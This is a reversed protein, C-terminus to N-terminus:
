PSRGPTVPTPPTPPAFSRRHAGLSLVYFIGFCAPGLATVGWAMGGVHGGWALMVAHAAPVLAATGIATLMLWVLFGSPYRRLLFARQEHVEWWRWALSLVVYPLVIWLLLEPVLVKAATTAEAQRAADAPGFALAQESLLAIFSRWAALGQWVVAAAGAMLVLRLRSLWRVRHLRRSAAHACWAADGALLQHVPVGARRAIRQALPFVVEEINKWYSTHDALASARNHVERSAFGEPADQPADHLAGHPVPDHSAFLETLRVRLGRWVSLWLQTAGPRLTFLVRVLGFVWAGLAAAIFGLQVLSDDWPVANRWWSVALCAAVIPMTAALWGNLVLGGDREAMRLVELKRLGSGIWTVERVQPPLSECMALYSVACGQSHAVVMVEDCRAALWELDRRCQAVIMARATPSAVLSQSDGLVRTLVSQLASMAAQVLRIPLMALVVSAALVVQLPLALPILLVTVVFWLLALMAHWGRAFWGRSRDAAQLGHRRAGDGFHMGIALPLVRVTWGMLAWSGPPLFRRAWWSEAVLVEAERLVHDTDLTHLHLVAQTPRGPSGPDQQLTGERLVAGGSWHRGAAVDDAQGSVLERPAWMTSAQMEMAQERVATPLGAPLADVWATVAAKGAAIARCRAAGHLWLDLSQVLPDAVNRLTEGMPQEGIGHVFLVGLPYRRASAEPPTSGAM